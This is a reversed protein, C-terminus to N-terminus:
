GSKVGNPNTQDRKPEKPGTQGRKFGNAINPGTKAQIVQKLGMLCQKAWFILVIWYKCVIGFLFVVWFNLLFFTSVVGFMVIVWFNLVLWFFSSGLFVSPGLFSSSGFFQFSFYLLGLFQPSSLLSSRYHHEYNVPFSFGCTLFCPKCCLAIVLSSM